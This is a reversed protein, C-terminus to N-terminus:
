EALPSVHLREMADGVTHFSGTVLVTPGLAGAHELARGFDPEVDAIWGCRMAEDRAEVPDWARSPPSTPAITMVFRDVVPALAQLMGRWDKDRLISLLAVCPRAAGVEAVTSACVTAGDMNHAVDFIFQGHRQFRGALRVRPLSALAEAHRTALPAPLLALARLAVAANLAQHRGLLSTRGAHAEGDIVLRFRTGDAAVSVHDVHATDCAIDIPTAGATRATSALLESIAADTEGILAPRGRKFIGGKEGAIKERTDGLYETHDIGVNTVIALLPDVVNTADLRGGLGVELITVDPRSEAFYALAMATTAEFFTAGLREIDPTWRAIFEVIFQEAVAVGDVVMRERFDVLHPSTYKAVRFGRDRLVRELTACVSGKGNTGGVHIIQLDRHPNGLLALLARTRELGFRWQGTTRVFLYDLADRYASLRDGV